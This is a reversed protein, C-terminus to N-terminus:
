GPYTSQRMLVKTPFSRSTNYAIATSRVLAIEVVSDIEYASFLPRDVPRVKLSKYVTNVREM